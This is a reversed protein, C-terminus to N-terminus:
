SAHLGAQRRSSGSVPPAGFSAVAELVPLLLYLYLPITKGALRLRQRSAEEAQRSYDWPIRFNGFVHRRANQLGPEAFGFQIWRAFLESSPIKM